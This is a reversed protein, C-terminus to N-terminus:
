SPKPVKAGQSKLGKKHARLLNVRAVRSKKEKGSAANIYRDLEAQSAKMAPKGLDNSLKGKREKVKKGGIKSTKTEYKKESVVRVAPSVIRAATPLPGVRPRFTASELVRSPTDAVPGSRRPVQNLTIITPSILKPM